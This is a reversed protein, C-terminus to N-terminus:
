GEKGAGPKHSPTSPAPFTIMPLSEADLISRLQKIREMAPRVFIIWTAVSGAVYGVMMHFVEM